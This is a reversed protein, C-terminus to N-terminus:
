FKYEPRTYVTGVFVDDGTSEMNFDRVECHRLIVMFYVHRRGPAWIKTNSGSLSIDM